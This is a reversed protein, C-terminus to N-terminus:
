CSTKLQETMDSEKHGWPSYGVLSRQGQSKGPLLVPTPQWKRSWPMKGVWPDFGDRTDGANASLNKVVPGGPFVGPTDKAKESQNWTPFPPGNLRQCDSVGRMITKPQNSCLSQTLTRNDHILGIDIQPETEWGQSALERGDKSFWEEKWLSLETVM